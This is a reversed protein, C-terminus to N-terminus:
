IWRSATYFSAILIIIVSFFIGIDTVIPTAGLEQYLRVKLFYYACLLVASLASGVLFRLVRRM